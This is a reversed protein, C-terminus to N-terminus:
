IAVVEVVGYYGRRTLEEVVQRWTTAEIDVVVCDNWPDACTVAYNAGWAAVGYCDVGKITTKTDISKYMNYTYM